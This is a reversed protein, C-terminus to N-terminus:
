FEEFISTLSPTIFFKPPQFTNQLPLLIKLPPPYFTLPQPFFNKPSLSFIPFTGFFTMLFNQFISYFFKPQRSFTGFQVNLVYIIADLFPDIQVSQEFRVNLFIYIYIVDLFPDIARSKTAGGSESIALFNPFINFYM